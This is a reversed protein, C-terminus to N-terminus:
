RSFVYEYWQGDQLKGTPDDIKVLIRIMPPADNHWACTYKFAQASTGPFNVYNNGLGKMGPNPLDKEWPALAPGSGVQIGYAELVDALPIVDNIDVVGDGNVDRPLGYWRTRRVWKRQDTASATKDMVFDIQGDTQGTIISGDAPNVLASVDNKTPDYNTGPTLNQPGNKAEGTMPDQNLFDGAYEVIFQTCNGLFYPVSQSLSQPTMPRSVTPNCRYRMISGGNDEMPRFWNVPGTVAGPAAQYTTDAMQRFQDMTIRALDSYKKFDQADYGFPALPKTRDGEGIYPKQSNDSLPINKMLIAMRGLIRDAGFQNEPLSLGGSQVGVHGVWIYAEGSSTSYAGPTQVDPVTQRRYLSRAFFGLRDLRPVRDSAGLKLFQPNPNGDIYTPDDKGNNDRQEQANRFGTVFTTNATPGGYGIRSSILFLPSDQACNRFDDALTAAAARHDRVIKSVAQNAGVADGSMKFVQSVGYMLLLVLAVSIMVEILTFAPRMGRRRRAFQNQSHMM